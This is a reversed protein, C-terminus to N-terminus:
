KKEAEQAIKSLDQYPVQVVKYNIKYPLDTNAPLDSALNAAIRLATQAQKEYDNFITAVMDGNQVALIGQKTGDIGFVPRKIGREKLAEIAGLAMTDNNALIIEVQNFQPSNAWKGVLDKAEAQQFMAYDAFVKQISVGLAPYNEMTGIAWKTRAMAGAHNPIGEIIAFQIKGDKNKDWEPHKSWNELVQLGQLVGAQAADGDVFYAKECNALAREGPSRNFFVLPIKGCYKNIVDAGKQVDVLNIVLAKAGKNKMDEFQKDQLIQDNNASDLLITLDTQEEGIKKFSKYAGQFFPNTDISSITVGVQTKPYPANRSDDNSCASLVLISFVTCLYNKKMM